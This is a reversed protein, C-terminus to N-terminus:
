AVKGSRRTMQRELALLRVDPWWVYVRHTVPDCCATVQLRTVWTRVTRGSRDVMDAAHTLPVWTAADESALHHHKARTFEDGHYRRGCRPCQHHDDVARKGYRKVLMAGCELCPTKTPEEREGESLVDELRGRLRALDAAFEDFAPHRQAMLTLHQGLYDACRWMTARPGAQHGLELRWDDEHTALMQLPPVPDSWSEHEHDLAQAGLSGPGLLVMADGGPIPAGALLRGDCGGEATQTPLLDTLRVIEALTDRVLGVCTACTQPHQDDTHNWCRGVCCHRHECPQGDPLTRHGLDPDHRCSTM